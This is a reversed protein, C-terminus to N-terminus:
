MRRERQKGYAQLIPKNPLLGISTPKIGIMSLAHLSSVTRSLTTLRYLRIVTKSENTTKKKKVANDLYV